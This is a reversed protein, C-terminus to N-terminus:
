FAACGAIDSLRLEELLGAFTDRATVVEEVTWGM